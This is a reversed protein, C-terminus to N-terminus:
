EGSVSIAYLRARDTVYLVGHSIVPTSYISSNFSVTREENEERGETLIVIEGDEDGLLVKGDVVTCSGWVAALTDHMWVRQGSEWDVCHLFGSLDPIYVLGNAIAATSITRRFVDSGKEGTISGDEDEGGYHWVVASNPNPVVKDGADADIDPRDEHPKANGASDVVLTPSVDGTKTADIRWFHGTGEGHEPDQGVGVVVCNEYFVPTAILSNRSGRGGLEWKSEKPNCDFWWVHEGTEADLAYIWGDGGPLFILTKGNVEGASASGWQGHLIRDFPTNDEWKVEGTNKDVAIFSPARPSPIELHAEDVGNSTTLYITDGVLLPSSTALNHPFVGLEEIMDLSWVIDADLEEKDTEDQYPGDNDGDHFGEADLCMLEARNTVVWVRDGEACPTSCIGQEPWDNVRGQPLKDRTLQWLFEGTKTDFCLVCGRDGKHQPRYEGGNNTGVYVKGNVVVPNAYTQSGLRATWLVHKGGQPEASPEFDFSLGTSGNVMNRHVSGGWMPWDGVLQSAGSEAAPEEAAATDPEPNAAVRLEDAPQTEEAAVEEETSDEVPEAVVAEAAEDVTEAASEDESEAAPDEVSAAESAPKVPEGDTTEPISADPLTMDPISLDDAATANGDDTTVNTKPQCGM